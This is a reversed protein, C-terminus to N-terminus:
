AARTQMGILTDTAHDIVEQLKIQGFQELLNYNTVVGAATTPIDLIRAHPHGWGMEIARDSLKEIFTTPSEVEGDYKISLAETGRQYNMVGSKTSYDLPNAINSVGPTLAFIPPPAVVAAPQIPPGPPQPPQQVPNPNQVGLPSAPGAAPPQRRVPAPTGASDPHAKTSPRGAASM